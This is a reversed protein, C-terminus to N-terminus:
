VDGYATEASRTARGYGMIMFLAGIISLNKLADVLMKANDPAAMNWFDYFLVAFLIRGFTVFAPM